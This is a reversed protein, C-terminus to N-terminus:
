PLPLLVYVPVAVAPLALAILFARADASRFMLGGGGPRASLISFIWRRGTVTGSRCEPSEDPDVGARDPGGSRQPDSADLVGPPPRGLTLPMFRRGAMTSSTTASM